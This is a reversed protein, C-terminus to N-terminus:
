RQAYTMRGLAYRFAMILVFKDVVCTKRKNEKKDGM